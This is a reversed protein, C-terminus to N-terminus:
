DDTASGIGAGLLGGILFGWAMPKAEAGCSTEQVICYMINAFIAGAAGGIIAGYAEGRRSDKEIQEAESRANYRSDGESGYQHPSSVSLSIRLERDYVVSPKLAEHLSVEQNYLDHPTLVLCGLAVLLRRNAGRGTGLM